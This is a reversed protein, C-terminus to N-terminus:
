NRCAHPIKNGSWSDFGAGGANPARLRVWQVVGQDIRLLMYERSIYFMHFNLKENDGVFSYASSFLFERRSTM